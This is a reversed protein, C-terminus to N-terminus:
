GRSGRVVVIRGLLPDLRIAYASGERSSLGITGGLVSGNPFFVFQRLGEGVPEGGEMETIRINSSLLVNKGSSLQYTNERQNLVLRQLNNDYIAKSRLSRAAAALKLTTERLERDKLGKDISPLVIISSLGFLLLVVLLELLSFGTERSTSVEFHLNCFKENKM